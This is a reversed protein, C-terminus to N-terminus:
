FKLGVSLGISDDRVGDVREGTEAQIRLHGVDGSAEIGVALRPAFHNTTTGLGDDISTNMGSLSVFGDGIGSPHDYTMNVGLETSVSSITRAAVPVIITTAEHDEEGFTVSGFPEVLFSGFAYTKGVHAAGSTRPTLFDSGVKFLELDGFMVMGRANWGQGFSWDFYGGFQDGFLSVSSGGSVVFFDSTTKFIGVEGQGFGVGFGFTREVLDDELAGDFRMYQISSWFRLDVGGSGGLSLTSFRLTDDDRAAIDADGNRGPALGRFVLDASSLAALGSGLSVKELETLASANQALAITSMAAGFLLAGLSRASTPTM